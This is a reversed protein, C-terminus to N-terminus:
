LNYGISHVVVPQIEVSNADTVGVKKQGAYNISPSGWNRLNKSVKKSFELLGITVKNSVVNSYNLDVNQM